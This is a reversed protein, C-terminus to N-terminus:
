AHLKNFPKFRPPRSYTKGRLSTGCDSSYEGGIAHVAYRPVNMLSAVCPTDRGAYQVYLMTIRGVDGEKETLNYGSRPKRCWIQCRTFNIM